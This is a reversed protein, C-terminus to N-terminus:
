ESEKAKGQFMSVGYATVFTVTSGLAVYWTFAIKTALYAYLMVALGVAMGAMASREGVRRTLVGLLFVGLLAGYVVSAIRLGAELVSPV